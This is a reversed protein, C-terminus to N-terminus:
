PESGNFSVQSRVLTQKVDEVKTLKGFDIHRVDESSDVVNCYSNLQSEPIKDMPRAESHEEPPSGADKEAGAENAKAAPSPSKSGGKDDQANQPVAYYQYGQISGAHSVSASGGQLGFTHLLEGNSSRIHHAGQDNAANDHFDKAPSDFTDGPVHLSEQVNKQVVKSTNAGFMRKQFNQPGFVNISQSAREEQIRSNMVDTVNAINKLLPNNRGTAAGQSCSEAEVSFSSIYKPALKKNLRKATIMYSHAATRHSHRLNQDYDAAIAGQGTSIQANEPSRNSMVFDLRFRHGQDPFAAPEERDQPSSSRKLDLKSSINHNNFKPDLSMFKAELKQSEKRHEAHGYM